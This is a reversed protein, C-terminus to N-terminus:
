DVTGGAHLEFEARRAIRVIVNHERRRHTVRSGPIHDALAPLYVCPKAFLKGGAAGAEVHNHFGGLEHRWLAEAIIALGGLHPASTNAGGNGAAVPTTHSPSDAAPAWIATSATATLAGRHASVDGVLELAPDPALGCVGRRLFQPLRRDAVEGHREAIVVRHEAIRREGAARTM